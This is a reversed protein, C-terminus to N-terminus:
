IDITKMLIKENEIHNLFVDALVCSITQNQKLNAELINITETTPINPYVFIFSVGYIFIYVVSLIITSSINERIKNMLWIIFQLQKQM